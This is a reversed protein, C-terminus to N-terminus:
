FFGFLFAASMGCLFRELSFRIEGQNGYLFFVDETLYRAVVRSLIFLLICLTIIRYEEKEILLGLFNSIATIFIYILPLVLCFAVEQQLFWLHGSCKIFFMNLCLSNFSEYDTASFCGFGWHVLLLVSWFLPVIRFFRNVYYRLVSPLNCPLNDDSLDFPRGALFGSIAFFYLEWSGRPKVFWLPISSYPYNGM